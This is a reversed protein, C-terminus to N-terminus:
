DAFAPMVHRAFLRLERLQQEPDPIGVPTLLMSECGLMDAARAVERLCDDPDGAVARHPVFDDLSVTKGSMVQQSVADWEAVSGASLYQRNIAISNNLWHPNLQDRHEAIHFDRMLCISSTRAHERAMRRYNEARKRTEGVHAPFGVIWGDTYRAARRVGADSNAGTWIPTAKGPLPAPTVRVPPIRFHQGSYSFEDGTLAKNLVDLCEDFRSARRKYDIEVAAFEYERYGLGAGFIFRNNSLEQLTNVQEALDLPHYTPVLTICTCLRIRSTRALLAALMIMPASPEGFSLEPTFRHHGIAAFDYGLEEAERLFGVIKGYPDPVGPEMLTRPIITGFKM